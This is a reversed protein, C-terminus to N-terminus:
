QAAVKAAALAPWGLSLIPSDDSAAALCGFSFAVSTNWHPSISNISDDEGALQRGSSPRDQM